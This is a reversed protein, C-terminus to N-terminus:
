IITTTKCLVFLNLLTITSEILLVSEYNQFLIINDEYGIASFLRNLVFFNIFEYGFNFSEDSMKYFNVLSLSITYSIIFFIINNLNLFINKISFNNVFSRFDSFFNFDKNKWLFKRLTFLRIGAQTRFIFAM